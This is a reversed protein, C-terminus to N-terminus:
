STVAFVLAVICITLSMTSLVVSAIAFTRASATINGLRLMPTNDVLPMDYPLYSVSAPTSGTPGSREVNTGDVFSAPVPGYGKPVRDDEIPRLEPPLQNWPVKVEDDRRDPTWDQPEEYAMTDSEKGSYGMQFEDGTPVIQGGSLSWDNGTPEGIGNAEITFFVGKARLPSLGVPEDTETYRLVDTKTDYYVGSGPIEWDAM